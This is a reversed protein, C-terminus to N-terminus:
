ALGNVINNYNRELNKNLDHDRQNLTRLNEKHKSAFWNVTMVDKINKLISQSDEYYHLYGEIAITM